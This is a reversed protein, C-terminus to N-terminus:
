TVSTVHRENRISPMYFLVAIYIIYNDSLYIDVVVVVVVVRMEATPTTTGSAVLRPSEVNLSLM